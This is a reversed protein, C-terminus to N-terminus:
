GHSPGRQAPTKSNLSQLLQSLFATVEAPNKLTYHAATKEHPPGVRISIAKPGLAQFADEDTIDDGLYIPLTEPPSLHLKELLWLIAQGKDWPIDPQLEFIKKGSSKRLSPHQALVTNVLREVNPIDQEAVERYHLAIAFQKREVWARPCASPSVLRDRLQTEAKDLTLLAQQALPQQQHLHHPGAIDFGHSGAYYLTDINVMQQIDALDRGSVIAVPIQCALDTLLSRMEESLLAADPRQVIPTLTGDYDTFLAIHHHQLRQQLQSFQVLPSLRDM